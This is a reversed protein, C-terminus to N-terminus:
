RFKEIVHLKATSVGRVTQRGNYDTTEIVFADGEWHGISDGQISALGRDLHPRAAGRGEIPIIRTEHFGEYRIAVYDKTQLIQSSNGYLTATRAASIGGAICRDTISRDTYSDATGRLRRAAARTAVRQKASETLPPVKGDPP